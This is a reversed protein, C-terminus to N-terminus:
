MERGKMWEEGRGIIDGGWGEKEEEGYAVNETGFITAINLTNWFSLDINESTITVTMTLFFNM